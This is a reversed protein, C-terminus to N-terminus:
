ILRSPSAARRGLSRQFDPSAMLTVCAVSRVIGLSTISSAPLGRHHVWPQSQVPGPPCCNGASRHFSITTASRYPASARVSDSQVGQRRHPAAAQGVHQVGYFADPLVGQARARTAPRGSGGGCWRRPTRHTWRVRRRTREDLTDVHVPDGQVMGGDVREVRHGQDLDCPPRAPSSRGAPRRPRRRRARTTARSRSEMSGSRISARSVWRTVTSSTPRTGSPGSSHTISM